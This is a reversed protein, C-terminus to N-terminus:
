NYENIISANITAQSSLGICAIVTLENYDLKMTVVISLQDSQCMGKDIKIDFIYISVYASCSM